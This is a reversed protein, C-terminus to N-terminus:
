YVFFRFFIFTRETSLLKIERNLKANAACEYERSGGGVFEYCWGDIDRRHVGLLKNKTPQQMIHEVSLRIRESPVLYRALVTSFGLSSPGFKWYMDADVYKRFIPYEFAGTEARTAGARIMSQCHVSDECINCDFLVPFDQALYKLDLNKILNSIVPGLALASSASRPEALVNYMAGSLIEMKNCTFGWNTDLLVHVSEIEPFDLATPSPSPFRSPKPSLDMECDANAYTNELPKCKAAVNPNKVQPVFHLAGEVARTSRDYLGLLVYALLLMCALVVLVFAPKLQM